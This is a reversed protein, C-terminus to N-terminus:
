VEVAHKEEVAKFKLLSIETETAKEIIRKFERYHHIDFQGVIPRNEKFSDISSKGVVIGIDEGRDAEVKVYDGNTIFQIPLSTLLYYKSIYKFRVQYVFGDISEYQNITPSIFSPIEKIDYKKNKIDDVM